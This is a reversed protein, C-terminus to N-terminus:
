GSIRTSDAGPQDTKKQRVPSPARGATLQPRLVKSGMVRLLSILHHGLMRWWGLGKRTGSGRPQARLSPTTPTSHPARTGM